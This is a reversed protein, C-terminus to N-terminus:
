KMNTFMFHLAVRYKSVMKNCVLPAPVGRACASALRKVKQMYDEGAYCWGMRPNIFAALLLLHCLVHSKITVDFLFLAGGAASTFHVGLANQITLFIMGTKRFTTAVHNPLNFSSKYTSLIEDLRVSCQLGLAIQDHVVDGRTRYMDWIHVLAPGLAKVEAARGKLKPFHDLPAAVNCIMSM